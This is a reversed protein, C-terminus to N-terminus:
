MGCPYPWEISFTPLSVARMRIANLEPSYSVISKDCNSAAWGTSTSAVFKPRGAAANSAKGLASTKM